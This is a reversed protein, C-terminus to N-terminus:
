GTPEKEYLIKKIESTKKRFNLTDISTYFLKTHYFGTKSSDIIEEIQDISDFVADRSFVIAAFCVFIIASGSLSSICEMLEMFGNAEFLLYELQLGVAFWFIIFGVLIKKNCTHQDSRIIGLSTFHLQIIQFIKM